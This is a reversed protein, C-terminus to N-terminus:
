SKPRNKFRTAAQSLSKHFEEWAKELGPKLDTAWAEVSTQGLEHLKDQLAKLKPRLADKEKGVANELRAALENVQARLEALQEELSKRNPQENSM